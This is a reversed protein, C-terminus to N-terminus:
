DTMKVEKHELTYRVKEADIGSRSVISISMVRTNVVLVPTVEPTDQSLSDNVAAVTANLDQSKTASENVHLWQGVGDFLAVTV